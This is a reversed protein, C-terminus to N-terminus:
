IACKITEPLISFKAHHGRSINKQILQFWWGFCRWLSDAMKNCWKEILLQGSWPSWGPPEGHPIKPALRPSTTLIKSSSLWLMIENGCSDWSINKAVQTPEGRMEPLNNKYCNRSHIPHSLICRSNNAVTAMTAKPHIKTLSLALDDGQVQSKSLPVSLSFLTGASFQLNKNFKTLFINLNWITELYACSTVTLM